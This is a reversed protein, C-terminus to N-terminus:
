RTDLVLVDVLDGGYEAGIVSAGSTAVGDAIRVACCGGFVEGRAAVASACVSRAVEGSAAILPAADSTLAYPSM